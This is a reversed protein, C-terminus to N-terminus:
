APRVTNLIKDYITLDGFGRLVMNRNGIIVFTYVAPTTGKVADGSLNLRYGVLGSPLTVASESLITRNGICVMASKCEAAQDAPPKTQGAEGYTVEFANGSAGTLDIYNGQAVASWGVPYDVAVGIISNTFTQMQGPQPEPAIGPCAGRGYLPTNVPIWKLWDLGSVNGLGGGEVGYWGSLSRGLVEYYQGSAATAFVGSNYDAKNYLTLNQGAQASVECGQGKAAASSVNVPNSSATASTNPFRGIALLQQGSLGAPVNWFISVGDAPNNDDGLPQQLGSTTYLVFAASVLETPPNQWTLLVLDGRLLQYFGADGSIYSNIGVTGAQVPGSPVTAPPQSQPPRPLRLQQGVSLANPNTLCNGTALDSATSTTRSAIDALTDGSVVTYITTWDARPTCSQGGGSNPTNTPQPRPTQTAAQTPRPTLTPLGSQTPPIGTETASLNCAATLLLVGAFVLLRRLM